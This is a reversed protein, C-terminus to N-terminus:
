KKEIFSVIKYVRFQKVKPDYLISEFYKIKVDDEKKLLNDTLLFASEFNNLLYFETVKGSNEKINFSLFDRKQIKDFKGIVTFYEKKDDKDEEIFDTFAEPCDIALRIGVEEACRAIIDMTLENEKEQDGYYFIIDEKYKDMNKLIFLGMATDSRMDVEQKAFGECFSKSVYKVLDVKSINQAFVANGLLLFFFLKKM